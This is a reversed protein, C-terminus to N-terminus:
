VRSADRSTWTADGKISRKLILIANYMKTYEQRSMLLMAFVLPLGAILVSFSVVSDVATAVPRFYGKFASAVLGGCSKMRGSFKRVSARITWSSFGRWEVFLGYRM